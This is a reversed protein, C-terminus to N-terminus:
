AEKKESATPPLMRQRTAWVYELFAKARDYAVRFKALQEKALTRERSFHPETVFMRLVCPILFKDDAGSIQARFQALEAAFCQKVPALHVQAWEMREKDDKCRAFQDLMSLRMTTLPPELGSMQPPLQKEIARKFDAYTADPRLIEEATVCLVRYGKASLQEPSDGECNKERIEDGPLSFAWVLDCLSSSSSM